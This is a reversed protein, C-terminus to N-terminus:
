YGYEGGKGYPAKEADSLTSWAERIDSEIEPAHVDEVEGEMEAQVARRFAEFACREAVDRARQEYSRGRLSRFNRAIYICMDMADPKSAFPFRPITACVLGHGVGGDVSHGAARVADKSRRRHVIALIAVM